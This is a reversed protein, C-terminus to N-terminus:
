NTAGLSQAPMAATIPALTYTKSIYPIWTVAPVGSVKVQLMYDTAGATGLTQYTVNSTQLGLFGAGGGDPATTSNYVLYNQTAAANWNNVVASRVTARTRETIFQQILLIRGMDMIFLFMGLVTLLVLASELINAGKQNKRRRTKSTSKLNM